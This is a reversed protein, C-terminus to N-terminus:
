FDLASLKLVCVTIVIRLGMPVVLGEHLNMTALKLFNPHSSYSSIHACSIELPRISSRASLQPYLTIRGKPTYFLSILLCNRRKACRKRFIYIELADIHRM